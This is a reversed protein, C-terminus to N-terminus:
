KSGIEGYYNKLIYYSKKKEGRESILGKRNWYDQIYALSRRPSRFDVLIWPSVGRLFTIKKLMSIQHKYFDEQYEETFRESKGGHHGFLCDAGIESIILPKKYITKWNYIECDEPKKDGYWGIYENCGLVDLYKGMPDDIIKTDGTENHVELAATILRTDDLSRSLEVLNKLFVNRSEKVPTENAVSWLIVSAKNKDRSIMETLQAKANDMTEQNEWQITWYVPIESWIM